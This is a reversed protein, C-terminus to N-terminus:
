PPVQYSSAESHDNKWMFLSPSRQAPCPPSVLTYHSRTAPNDSMPRLVEKQVMDDETLDITWPGQAAKIVGQREKTRRAQQVADLSVQGYHGSAERRKQERELDQQARAETIMDPDYHVLLAKQAQREYSDPDLGAPENLLSLTRINSPLPDHSATRWEDLWENMTLVNQPTFIRRTNIQNNISSNMNASTTQPQVQYRRRTEARFRQLRRLRLDPMDRSTVQRQHLPAFPINEQDRLARGHPRSPPQFM